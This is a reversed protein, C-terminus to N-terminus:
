KKVREIRENIAQVVFANLSQGCSAAIQRLEDREGKPLFVNLRDYKEATYNNRYKVPDFKEM